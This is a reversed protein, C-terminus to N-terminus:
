QLGRLVGEAEARLTADGAAKQLHARAEASRGVAALATGLGLHARAFEPRQRLASEYSVIASKWDGSASQVTGLMEWADAFGPLLRVVTELERRAESARGLQMVVGALGFHAEASQPALRVAERHQFEAEQAQGSVFLANGLNSRAAALDPKHRLAERLETVAAAVNGSEMLAGGLANHAEAHDPDSRVAQEFAARADGVRGAARYTLGLAHQVSSNEPDMSRARELMEVSEAIKGSERLLEGLNRMAPVSKPNVRLADRYSEIAQDRQGTVAYAEALGIRFGAYPPASAMAAALAPIGGKLNSRQAVQALALYVSDGRAFEAPYYPAVEGVFGEGPKEHREPIAALLNGTPPRRQILHDTMVGHVVDETRRKPMHCGTCETGQPHASPLAAHCQRCASAYKAAAREGRPADHPDHCTTCQLRDSARFCKSQRLRYVSNVIEFKGGRGAGPGHDFHLVFDSLPEGPRYSFAGRGFRVFSNPLPFSTTELHCQMCVELSRDRSLKTPNVISARIKEKPAGAEGAASVHASGPGHCRQCDIGEPLATAFTPEPAPPRDQAPYANHCFMCDTSIKRRWEQHDPRDYGPSMAFFGGKEAYWAIPLEALRGQPTQHLYSRVHNGSGMVWHIEIEHVNTEKGDFGKQSRRLYFRGDRRLMRYSRASPAHHLAPGDWRELNLNEPTARFFARGMGTRRYTRAIEAHCGACLKSDVYQAPTPASVPHSCSVAVAVAAIAGVPASWYRFQRGASALARGM